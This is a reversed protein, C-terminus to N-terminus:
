YMTKHVIFYSCGQINALIRTYTYAVKVQSHLIICCLLTQWIPLNVYQQSMKAIIPHQNIHMTNVLTQSIVLLLSYFCCALTYHILFFLQSNSLFSNALIGRVRTARILMDVRRHIGGGFFIGGVHRKEGLSNQLANEGIFPSYFLKGVHKNLILGNNPGSFYHLQHM